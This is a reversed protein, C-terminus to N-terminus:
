GCCPGTVMPSIAGPCIGACISRVYVGFLEFEDGL